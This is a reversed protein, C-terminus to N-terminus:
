IIDEDMLDAKLIGLAKHDEGLGTKLAARMDRIILQRTAPHSFNLAGQSHEELLCAEPYSIDITGKLIRGVRHPDTCEIIAAFEKFTISKFYDHIMATQTSRYKPDHRNATLPRNKLARTSDISMQKLHASTLYPHAARLKALDGGHISKLERFLKLLTVGDPLPTFANKLDNILM